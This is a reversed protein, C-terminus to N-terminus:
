RKTKPHESRLFKKFLWGLVSTITDARPLGIGSHAMLTFLGKPVCLRPVSVVHATMTVAPQYPKRRGRVVAFYRHTAWTKQINYRNIQSHPPTYPTQVM